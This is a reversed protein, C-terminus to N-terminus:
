SSYTSWMGVTNWVGHVVILPWLNRGLLVYFLGHAMAFVTAYLFAFGGAYLHLSGFLVAQAAIAVALGLPPSAFLQSVRTLLFGRFLCEEMFGGVIWGIAIWLAFGGANGRIYSLFSPQAVPHVLAALAPVAWTSLAMN